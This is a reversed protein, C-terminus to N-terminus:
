KSSAIREIYEMYANVKEEAMYNGSEWMSILAHTCGISRAIESISIRYKLRKLRWEERDIM